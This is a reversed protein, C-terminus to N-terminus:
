PYIGLYATPEISFTLSRGSEGQQVVVRYLVSSPQRLVFEMYMQGPSSHTYTRPFRWNQKDDDVPRLLQAETAPLERLARVQHMQGCGLICSAGLVQVIFERIGLSDGDALRPEAWTLLDALDRSELVTLFVSDREVVAVRWTRCHSCSNPYASAVYFIVGPLRAVSASSRTIRLDAYGPEFASRQFPSEPRGASDFLQRPWIAQAVRRVVQAPVGEGIEQATLVRPSVLVAAAFAVGFLRM